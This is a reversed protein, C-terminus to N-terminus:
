LCLGGKAPIQVVLLCTGRRDGVQVLYARTNAGCVGRVLQVANLKRLAFADDGKKRYACAKLPMQFGKYVATDRIKRRTLSGHSYCLM